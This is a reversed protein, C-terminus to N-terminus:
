REHSPLLGLVVKIENRLPPKPVKVMVFRQGDPAVDFYGDFDGKFLGQPKGATFESGTHTSVSMMQDGSRYFLEKGDRRWVPDEGGASLIWKRGPRPYSQVYIEDRGSQNSQYAIWRGDPSFAAEHEDFPTSVVPVPVAQERPAVVFIDSLASRYQEVVAIASGDPSWSKPFDWTRRSTIQRPPASLDSPVLYLDFGGNKNSSFAIQKGDPSWIGSENTGETTM